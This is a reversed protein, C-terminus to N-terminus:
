YVPFWDVSGTCYRTMFTGMMNLTLYKLDLVIVIRDTPSVHLSRWLFTVQLDDSRRRLARTAVTRM